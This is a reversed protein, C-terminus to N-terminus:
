YKKKYWEMYADAADSADYYVITSSNRSLGGRPVSDYFSGFNSNTGSGYFRINGCLGGVGSYYISSNVVSEYFSNNVCINEKNEEM